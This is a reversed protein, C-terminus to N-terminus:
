NENGYNSNTKEKNRLNLISSIEEMIKNKSDEDYTHDTRDKMKETIYTAIKLAIQEKYLMFEDRYPNHTIPKSPTQDVFPDSTNPFFSQSHSIRIPPSLAKRKASVQQSCFRKVSHIHTSNNPASDNSNNPLAPFNNLDNLLSFRNNCVVKNYAPNKVLAEAEKFTTKGASMVKKIQLQTSYVPCNRSISPHDNSKCNVCFVDNEECNIGDEHVKACTKCKREKSRCLKQIHGYRFCKLCQVVPYIYPEVPFNVLNIQVNAPITDGVFTVIIMQRPRIEHSGDSQVVKRVMRQVETVKVPSQINNKLFETEFYTDVMKIIGKRHTFFKPIYGVLDHKTISEHNILSNAVKYSKFIVKVRNIGISTIDIVDDKFAPNEFLYHGVRIPFLRGVNKTRHEVYVFFPGKDRVQYKNDFDISNFKNTSANEVGITTLTNGPTSEIDNVTVGDMNSQFANDTPPVLGGGKDSM